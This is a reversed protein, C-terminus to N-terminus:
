GASVGKLASELEAQADDFAYAQVAAEFRPWRDNGFLPRLAPHNAQLFDAASPDSESLLTKLRAAAELARSSDPPTTTSPQPREDAVPGLAARLDAVLPDLAEAAERRATDVEAAGGRDRLVRELRAAAAHVRTAGINGAVGKLSHALLEARSMDGAGLAESVQAIAPGQQEVFQRLLSTYLRRNGGVRSLGDRADLGDIPQLLAAPDELHGPSAARGGLPAGGAAAECFRAVTEILEGPDIPKAVHANM